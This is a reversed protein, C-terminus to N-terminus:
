GGNGLRARLRTDLAMMGIAMGDTYREERFSPLMLAIVEACFSDPLVTELGLGVEIRARRENPALVLLVGDDREASGIGWGNGLRLSYDEINQGELSPTTVVVFQVGTDAELQALMAAMAQERAPEVLQAADVVWGTLALPAQQGQAAAPPQVQQASATVPTCAIAAVLAAALTPALPHM